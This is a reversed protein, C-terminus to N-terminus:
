GKFDLMKVAKQLHIIITPQHNIIVQTNHIIFLSFVM